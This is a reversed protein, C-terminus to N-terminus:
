NQTQNELHCLIIDRIEDVYHKILIIVSKLSLSHTTEEYVAYKLKIDNSLM